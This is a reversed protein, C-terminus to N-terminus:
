EGERRTRDADIGKRASAIGSELVTSAPQLNWRRTLEYALVVFVVTTEIYVVFLGTSLSFVAAFVIYGFAGDLLASQYSRGRRIAAEIAFKYQYLGIALGIIGYSFLVGLLGIDVDSFYVGLVGLPGGHWQVSLLGAGTIPHERIYPLATETEEIRANASPDGGPGQGAVVGLAETFHSVVSAVAAPSRYQVVGLALAGVLSLRALLLIASGLPKWLFLFILLTAVLSITLARWSSGTNVIYIFFGVLFFSVKSERLARLMYYMVGFPLLYGPVSFTQEQGFGLIFGIPADPYNAPNLFLRMFGYVLAVSSVLFLLSRRLDEETMWNRRWANILLIWTGLLIVSRKALLGYFFPQGFIRAASIAPSISLVAMAFLLYLELRSFRWNARIKFMPLLTVFALGCLAFWLEELLRGGPFFEFTRLNMTFVIFLATRKWTVEQLILSVRRGVGRRTGAPSHGNVQSLTENYPTPNGSM